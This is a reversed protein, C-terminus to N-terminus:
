QHEIRGRSVIYTHTHTQTHTHTHTHTHVESFLGGQIAAEGKTYSSPVLMTSCYIWRTKAKIGPEANNVQTPPLPGQYALAKWLRVNPANAPFEIGQPSVDSCHILLPRLCTGQSKITLTQTQLDTQLKSKSLLTQPSLSGETNSATLYLVCIHKLIMVV